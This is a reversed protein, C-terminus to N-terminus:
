FTGGLIEYILCTFAILLVGVFFVVGLTVPYKDFLWILTGFVGISGFVILLAKGFLWLDM